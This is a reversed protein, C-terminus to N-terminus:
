FWYGHFSEKYSSGTEGQVEQRQYQRAFCGTQTKVKKTKRKSTAQRYFLLSEKSRALLSVKRKVPKTNLRVPPTTTGLFYQQQM